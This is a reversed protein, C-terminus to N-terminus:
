QPVPVDFHTKPSEVGLKKLIDSVYSTTEAPLPFAGANDARGPGANYAALGLLLNGGYRDLMQKLYRAGGDVNQHPDFPDDVGLGSATDPMLQMLGEAGASSVACPLYSSEKEIVARLLQPTLGERQAIEQVMPEIQDKPVPDCEAEAVIAPAAGPPSLPEDWPVTFFAATPPANPRVQQRVSARQREISARQRAIADPSQASVAAAALALFLALKM